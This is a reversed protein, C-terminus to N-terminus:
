NVENLYYLEDSLKNLFNESDSANWVQQSIENLIQKYFTTRAVNNKNPTSARENGRYPSYKIKNYRRFHSFKPLQDCSEKLILEKLQSTLYHKFETFKKPYFKSYSDSSSFNNSTSANLINLKKIIEVSQSSKKAKDLNKNEIIFNSPYNERVKYITPATKKNQSNILIPFKEKQNEESNM